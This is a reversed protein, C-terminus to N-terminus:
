LWAMTPSILGSRVEALHITFTESSPPLLPSPHTACAPDLQSKFCVCSWVVVQSALTLRTFSQVARSWVCVISEVARGDPGHGLRQRVTRSGLQNVSRGSCLVHATCARVAAQWVRGLAHGNLPCATAERGRVPINHQQQPGATAAACASRRGRAKSSAGRRM